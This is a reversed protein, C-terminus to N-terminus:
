LTWILFLHKEKKILIIKKGIIQAFYKIIKQILMGVYLGLREVGL